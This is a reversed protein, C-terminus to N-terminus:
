DQAIVNYIVHVIKHDFTSDNKYVQPLNLCHKDFFGISDNRFM